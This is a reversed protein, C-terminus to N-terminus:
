MEAALLAAGLAGVVQPEQPVIIKVGLKEQLAEVVARNKAVGGTMMVKGVIGIRNAMLETREVISAIIGRIIQERPYGEAILSVVESEAFVTCMSSIPVTKNTQAALRSFDNLDVELAQCMVELFRGTGAACKENMLFDVVKGQANLCIVKSDQGGIDIVTRVSPDLHYAGRGHCTIETVKEHIFPVSVRGYGTAVIRELQAFSLGSQRLAEEMARNIATKSSAGTPLIVAAIIHKHEQDLIVVETSLSGIDMGAVPM